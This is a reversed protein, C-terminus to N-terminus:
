SPQFGLQAGLRVLGLRAALAQSALPRARWQPLLGADLAHTLAPHAARRAHGRRRHAPDTLVSIHAVGNPWTRYGCAAAVEGDPTRSAFVPDPLEDMSSELLDDRPVRAFLSALDDPSAPRVDGDLAPPVYGPPPYSLWAPGLVDGTAPLRPRVLEPRTADDATLGALAAEVPEKLEPRPVAATVTGDLGLIAIWGARGLPSAPDVVVQLERLEDLGALRAWARRAPTGDPTM